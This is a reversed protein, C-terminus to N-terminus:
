GRAARAVSPEVPVLRQDRIYFESGRWEIRRKFFSTVWVVFAFGDRLPVMWMKRRLLPDQVGWVGVTWAMMFRFLLYGALYAAAAAGSPAIAAALFAWPLGQTFLLSLHGWPKAHRMTLMWRVQHAFCQKWTQAPFVTFVPFKTLEVRHGLAHIRHGMEYDDTFHNVLVEFGGIEALREKTTAMTAGLAFDVGGLQWAALVGADFDSTNGLAELDSVLSGDTLGRYLCTVAGVQPDNFPAAVARL